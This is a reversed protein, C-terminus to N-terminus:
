DWALLWFLSSSCCCCFAWRHSAAAASIAACTAARWVTHVNKYGILFMQTGPILWHFTISLLSDNKMQGWKEPHSATSIISYNFIAVVIYIQQAVQSHCSHSMVTVHSHCPQSMVTIVAVHDHCSQLMVTVHSRCSSLMVANHNKTM